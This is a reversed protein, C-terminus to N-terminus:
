GIARAIIELVRETRAIEERVVKKYRYHPDALLENLELLEAAFDAQRAKWMDWEAKEENTAPGRINATGNRIDIVVHDPHPLPEPLGTIGLRERRDLEREWEIKYTMAVDM